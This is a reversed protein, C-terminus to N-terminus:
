HWRTEGRGLLATALPLWALLALAFASWAYILVTTPNHQGVSAAWGLGDRVMGAFTLLYLSLLFGFWGFFRWVPESTPFWQRRGAHMGIALFAAALNLWLPLVLKGTMSGATALFVLNWGILVFVLLTRSRLQWSLGGVGLLIIWPAVHLTHDFKWTESCAWICLLVAALIGQAISPMAWALVLAGVAWLLFGNPFHEDIHYIQAVLWIGAGYLMTGLITLAEGLSRRGDRRAFLWLGTAHSALISLFIVGLKGAKPIAQWNYAFLLIVGLGFVSAGLGAFIITSWPAGTKSEAYRLRIREAQESSVLRDAVWAKLEEQLWRAQKSM